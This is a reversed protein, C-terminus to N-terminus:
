NSICKQIDRHNFISPVKSSLSVAAAYYFTATLILQQSWNELADYLMFNISTKCVLNIFHKKFHLSNDIILPGTVKPLFPCNQFSKKPIKFKKFLKKKRLVKLFADTTNNNTQYYATSQIQSNTNIPFELVYTKRCIKWNKEACNNWLM